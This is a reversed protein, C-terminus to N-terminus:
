MTYKVANRGNEALPLPLKVVAVHLLTYTLTFNQLVRYSNLQMPSNKGAGCIQYSIELNLENLLILVHLLIRSLCQYLVSYPLNHCRRLQTSVQYAALCGLYAM